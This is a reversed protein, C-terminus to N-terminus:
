LISMIFLFVVQYLENVVLITLYREFNHNWGYFDHPFLTKLYNRATILDEPTM